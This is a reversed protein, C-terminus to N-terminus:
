TTIFIQPYIGTPLSHVYMCSSRPWFGLVEHILGPIIGWAKLGLVWSTFAPPDPIWPWGPSCSVKDWFCLVNYSFDLSFGQWLCPAALPSQTYSAVDLSLLAPLPVELTKNRSSGKHCHHFRASGPVLWIYFISAELHDWPSPSAESRYKQKWHTYSWRLCGVSPLFSHGHAPLRHSMVVLQFWTTQRLCIVLVKQLWFNPTEM